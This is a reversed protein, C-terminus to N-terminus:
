KSDELKNKLKKIDEVTMDKINKEDQKKTPDKEPKHEKKLDRNDVAINSMQVIAQQITEQSNNIQQTVNENTTTPSTTPTPFINATPQPTPSAAQSTSDTQQITPTATPTSTSQSTKQQTTPERTPASQTGSSTPTSFEKQKETLITSAENLKVIYQEAAKKKEVPDSIQAISAATLEVQTDLRNLTEASNNATLIKAVENSRKSVLDISFDIQKNLVKSTLLVFEEFKLKFPYMKDGPLTNNTVYIMVGLILFGFFAVWVFYDFVKKILAVAINM